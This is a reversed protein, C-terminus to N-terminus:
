DKIQVTKFLSSNLKSFGPPVSCVNTDVVVALALIGYSLTCVSGMYLSLTFCIELLIISGSPGETDIDEHYQNVM